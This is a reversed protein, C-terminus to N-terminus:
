QDDSEHYGVTGGTISHCMIEKTVEGLELKIDDM